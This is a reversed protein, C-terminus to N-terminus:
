KKNKIEYISSEKWPQPQSYYNTNTYKNQFPTGNKKPNHNKPVFECASSDM